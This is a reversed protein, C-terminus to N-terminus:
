KNNVVKQIDEPTFTGMLRIVTYENDGDVFMVLDKFVNNQQEALFVVNQGKDKVQMIREYRKNKGLAEMESKIFRISNQSETTYIEIQSLKNAISKIDTGGKDIHPMMSLLAKSIFVTTVNKDNSLKDFLAVKQAQAQMIACAFLALFIIKKM